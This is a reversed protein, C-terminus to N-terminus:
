KWFEWWKKPQEIRQLVVNSAPTIKSEVNDKSLTVPSDDAEETDDDDEESYDRSLIEVYAIEMWPPADVSVH